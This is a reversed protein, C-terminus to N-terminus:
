QSFALLFGGAGAAPVPASTTSPLAAASAPGLGRGAELRKRVVTGARRHGINLMGWAEEIRFTHGGGGRVHTHCTHAGGDLGPQQRRGGM